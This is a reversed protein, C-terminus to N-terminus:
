RLTIQLTTDRIMAINRLSVLRKGRLRRLVPISFIVPKPTEDRGDNLALLVREAAALFPTKERLIEEVDDPELIM